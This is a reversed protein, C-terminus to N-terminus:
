AAAPAAVPANPDDEPDPTAARADRLKQYDVDSRGVLMVLTERFLVLERQLQGALARTAALAQQYQANAEEAEHWEKLAAAYVPDLHGLLDAAYPLPTLANESQAALEQHAEVTDRLREADEIVDDPVSTDAFTSRDFHPIDKSLRPLWARIAAVLDAVAGHGERLEKQWRANFRKVGDYTTIFDTAVPLLTNNFAAIAPSESSRRELIRQARAALRRLKWQPTSAM